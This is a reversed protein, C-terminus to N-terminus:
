RKALASDVIVPVSKSPSSEEIMPTDNKEEEFSLIRKDDSLALRGKNYSSFCGLPNAAIPSEEKPNYYM